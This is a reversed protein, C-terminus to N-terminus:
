FSLEFRLYQLNENINMTTYESDDETLEEEGVSATMEIKYNDIAWNLYKRMAPISSSIMRRHTNMVFMLISPDYGEEVFHERIANLAQDQFEREGSSLNIPLERAERKVQHEIAERKRTRTFSGYLPNLSSFLRQYRVIERTDFKMDAKVRKLFDSVWERNLLILGIQDQRLESIALIIDDKSKPYEYILRALKNINRVPNQLNQFTTLDQFVSHNLIHLQNFLDNNSLNLPTASLMLMMDATESLIMGLDYSNTGINRLHHAEDIVVMGFIPEKRNETIEKLLERYRDARFLQLGVISLRYADPVIGDSKIGRLMDLLTKGSEHVFFELSFRDKMERKWKQMISNPCVVIAPTSLNLRNRSLLETLIIGTEITKGVGVEDAIFLREDSGPSLFRLLPKFQYPNFVTRSGLYSYLNNELPSAIRLWTHFRQFDEFDGFDGKIFDQEIKEEIDVYPALDREGITVKKGEFTVRYQIERAGTLVDNVTGIKNSTKNVVNDGKQFRPTDRLMRKGEESLGIKKAKSWLKEFKAILRRSEPDDETLKTLIATEINKSFGAYTLNNSGVMVRIEDKARFIYSKAHLFREGQHLRVEIGEISELRQLIRIKDEKSPIFDESILVKVPVSGEQDRLRKSVRLLLDTGYDNLYASLIICEIADKSANLFENGWDEFIIRTKKGNM